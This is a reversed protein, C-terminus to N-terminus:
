WGLVDLLSFMNSHRWYLSFSLTAASVRSSLAVANRWRCTTVKRMSAGCHKNYCTAKSSGMLRTSLLKRSTFFDWERQWTQMLTTCLVTRDETTNCVGGDHIPHSSMRNQNPVDPELIVHWHGLVVQVPPYKWRFSRYIWTRSQCKACSVAPISRIQWEHQHCVWLAEM